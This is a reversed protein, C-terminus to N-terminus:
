IRSHRLRLMDLCEALGGESHSGHEVRSANSVQRVIGDEEEICTLGAISWEGLYSCSM